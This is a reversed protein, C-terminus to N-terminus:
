YRGLGRVKLFFGTVDSLCDSKDWYCSVSYEDSFLRSLLQWVCLNGTAESNPFNSMQNLAVVGSSSQGIVSKPHYWKTERVRTFTCHACAIGSNNFWTRCMKEHRRRTFRKLKISSSIKKKKIIFLNCSLINEMNQLKEFKLYKVSLQEFNWILSLMSVTM